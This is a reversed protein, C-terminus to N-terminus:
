QGGQEEIELTVIEDSGEGTQAQGDTGAGEDIFGGEESFEDPMEEGGVRVGDIVTEGTEGSLDETQIEGSDMTQPLVVPANGDRYADLNVLKEEADSGTVNCTLIATQPVQDGYNDVITWNVVCAYGRSAANTNICYVTVDNFTSANFDGPFFARAVTSNDGSLGYTARATEWHNQLEGTNWTLMGSLHSRIFETDHALQASDLGVQTKASVAKDHYTGASEQITLQNNLKNIDYFLGDLVKQRNGKVIGSIILLVVMAGLSAGMAVFHPKELKHKEIVNMNAKNRLVRKAVRGAENNAPVKISVPKKVFPEEQETVTVPKNDSGEIKISM